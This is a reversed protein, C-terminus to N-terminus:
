SPYILGLALVSPPAFLVPRLLPRWASESDNKQLANQWILVQSKNFADSSRPWDYHERIHNSEKHLFANHTIGRGDPTAINAVIVIKLYM